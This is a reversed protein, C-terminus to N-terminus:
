GARRELWLDLDKLRARALTWRPSPGLSPFDTTQPLHSLALCDARQHIRRKWIGVIHRVRHWGLSRHSTHPSLFLTGASRKTGHLSCLTISRSHAPGQSAMVSLIAQSHLPPEGWLSWPLPPPWWHAPVRGSSATPLHTPALSPGLQWPGQGKWLPTLVASWGGDSGSVHGSCRLDPLPIHDRRFILYSTSWAPNRSRRADAERSRQLAAWAGVKRSDLVSLIGFTRGLRCCVLKTAFFRVQISTLSIINKLFIEHKEISISHIQNKPAAWVGRPSDSHM